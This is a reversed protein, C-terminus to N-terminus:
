DHGETKVIKNYIGLLLFPAAWQGIFLADSDRTTKCCKLAASVGMAVFAAGLFLVSPLKSTEKEIGKTVKDENGTTLAM